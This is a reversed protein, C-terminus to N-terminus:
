VTNSGGFPPCVLPSRSM